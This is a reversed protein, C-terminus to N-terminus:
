KTLPQNGEGVKTESKLIERKRTRSSGKWIGFDFLCMGLAGEVSMLVKSIDRCTIKFRVYDHKFRAREDIKM